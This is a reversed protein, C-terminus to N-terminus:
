SPPFKSLPRVGNEIVKEVLRLCDAAGSNTRALRPFMGVVSMAIEVLREADETTRQRIAAAAIMEDCPNLRYPCQNNCAGTCRPSHIFPDDRRGGAWKSRRM